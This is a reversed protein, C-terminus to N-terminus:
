TSSNQQKSNSSVVMLTKISIEIASKSNIEKGIRNRITFSVFIKLIQIQIILIEPKGVGFERFLYATVMTVRFNLNLGQRDYRM